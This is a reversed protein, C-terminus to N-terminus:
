LPLARIVAAPAGPSTVLGNQPRWVWARRPQGSARAEAATAAARGFDTDFRPMLRHGDTWPAADAYQGVIGTVALWQGPEVWPRRMGTAERVLVRARGSGDDLTLTPGGFGVVRGVIRVLRGENADTLAGSPVTVAGPPEGPGERILADPRDLVLEREGHYDKLRGSALVRDGLALAPLSAERPALYVLIGSQADGLYLSRAALREPPATVWGRVQVRTGAPLGRLDALPVRDGALGTGAEGPGTGGKGAAGPESDKRKPRPRNPQGPTVAYDATWDGGGDVSRSWSRDYGPSRDWGFRDAEVGEPRYLRITDVANALAITSQRRHVLLFGGAAIRSGAPLTYAWGARDRDELRWGTLDVARPEPNFLEIWEDEFGARGDGDWDVRRPAPLVENLRIGPEGTPRSGARGPSPEPQPWWDEATDSDRGAPIREISAGPPGMPVAPDFADLNGGYSLADALQGTPGRLRVLDGGNALGGGIRGDALVLIMAKPNAQAVAAAAADSAAVVLFAGAPLSLGPLTDWDSRDGVAWGALSVAGASPNHLELWELAADNGPAEPDFLVESILLPLHLTAPDPTASPGAPSASPAPSPSAGPAPPTAAPPTPTEGAPPTRPAPDGNPGGPSPPLADTWPLEGDVLRAYSADPQSRGFAHADMESADPRLLRVGDGGNNLSLGSDRKFILLHGRPAIVTGDPIIYPDSGGDAVDDLRWGRLDIPSDGPNFLEIWEDDQNAQGDGDWDVARPAPLYENVLVRAGPPVSPPPAATPAETPRLDGAPEGPSPAPQDIWDAASDTDHGAPVRELSHGAAVDPAPPDLQGADDGWSVGDVVTGDPGILRLQDGGNGLGNGISGGLTVLAGAFGPHDAAFGEGGAVVLYGGPPIEVDPLADSARNDAIQWGALSVAADGPNVLELWERPGESGGEPPDYQLENLVVTGPASGQSLPLASAPLALALSLCACLAILLSRRPKVNM